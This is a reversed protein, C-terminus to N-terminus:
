EIVMIQKILVNIKDEGVKMIAMKREIILKEIIGKKGAHKGAFVIANAKEKLELCKEIKKDKFNILASDGVNCKIDTLINKGDRLNLQMQKKKLIKKDIIKSVKKNAEPEKIEVAKFKGNEALDIRYHKKSPIISVTDFLDLGFKEEHAIKNNVLISKEHLAKKVEKKNQAIKIMNRLVVLLPLEGSIPRVVFATGKRPIPWNKPITQRKLHKM